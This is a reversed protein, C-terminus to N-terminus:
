STITDGIYINLDNEKDLYKFLYLLLKFLYLYQIM